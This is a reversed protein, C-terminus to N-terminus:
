RQSRYWGADGDDEGRNRRADSTNRHIIEASVEPANRPVVSEYAEAGPTREARTLVLGSGDEDAGFLADVAASFATYDDSSDGSPEIEPAPERITTPCDVPNENAGREELSGARRREPATWCINVCTDRGSRAKFMASGCHRCRPMRRADGYASRARVIMREVIDRIDGVRNVRTESAIGHERLDHGDVPVALICVRIADRGNERVAGNVISTYIRVVYAGRAVFEPEGSRTVKRQYVIERTGPIRVTEFGSTDLKAIIALALARRSHLESPNFVKIEKERGPHGGGPETTFM